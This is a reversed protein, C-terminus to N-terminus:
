EFSAAKPTVQALTVCGFYSIHLKGLGIGALCQAEKETASPGIDLLKVHTGM